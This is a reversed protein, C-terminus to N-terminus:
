NVSVDAASTRSNQLTCFKCVSSSNMCYWEAIGMNEKGIVKQQDWYVLPFTNLISYILLPSITFRSYVLSRLLSDILSAVSPPSKM